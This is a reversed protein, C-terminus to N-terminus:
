WVFLLRTVSPFGHTTICLMLHILKIASWGFIVVQVDCSAKFFLCLQTLFTRPSNSYLTVNGFTPERSETLRENLQWNTWFVLTHSCDLLLQHSM